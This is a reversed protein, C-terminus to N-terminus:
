ACGPFHFMTGPAELLAFLAKWLRPDASPRHVSLTHILTTDTAVPQLFLDSSDSDSFQLQWFDEELEVLNDRFVARLRALPFGSKRGGDFCQLYVDFSM